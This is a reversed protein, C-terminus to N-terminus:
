RGSRRSPPVERVMNGQEADADRGLVLVSGREAVLVQGIGTSM